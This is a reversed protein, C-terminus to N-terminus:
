LTEQIVAGILSLVANDYVDHPQSHRKLDWNNRKHILYDRYDRFDKDSLPESSFTIHMHLMQCIRLIGIQHLEEYREPIM